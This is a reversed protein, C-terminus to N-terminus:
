TSKKLPRVSDKHIDNLLINEMANELGLALGGACCFLELTKYNKLPKVADEKKFSIEFMFKAQEFKLLEQKDILVKGRKDKKVNSIKKNKVWSNGTSKSVGLIDAVIPLSLLTEKM